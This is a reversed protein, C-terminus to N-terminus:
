LSQSAFGNGKIFPPHVLVEIKCRKTEEQRKAFMIAATLIKDALDQRVETTREPTDFLGCVEIVLDNTPCMTPFLLVTVDKKTLRLQPVSIVADTIEKQFSRADRTEAPIDLVKIIPM